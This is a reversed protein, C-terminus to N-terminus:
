SSGPDFGTSPDMYILDTWTQGIPALDQQDVILPLSTERPQPMLLRDLSAPLGLPLFARVDLPSPGFTTRRLLHLVQPETWPGAYPELGATSRRPAPVAPLASSLSVQRPPTVPTAQGLSAATDQDGM